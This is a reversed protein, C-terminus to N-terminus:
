QALNYERDNGDGIRVSKIKYNAYDLLVLDFTEVGVYGKLLQTTCFVPIGNISGTYDQHSHGCIIIHVKGEAGVFNYEKGNLIITTRSNFANCLKTVANAMPTIGSEFPSSNSVIHMAIANHNEPHNILLDAVWDIQKWRYATMSSDWDIGTDLVLFRTSSGKFAYYMKGYKRFWLNIMVQNSLVGEDGDSRSEGEIGGQYNNDHNGFMPYYNKFSSNMMGDIEGLYQLADSQKHNTLWDGGCLVFNSPINNYYQRLLNIANNRKEYSVNKYYLHTDTFFIFPEVDGEVNFLSTFRKANDKIIGNKLPEFSAYKKQLISVDDSLGGKKYVRITVDGSAIFASSTVYIILKKVDESPTFEVEKENTFNQIIINSTTNYYLPNSTTGINTIVGDAILRFVYAVGKKLSCPFDYTNSASEINAHLYVGEIAIKLDNLKKETNNNINIIDIRIEGASVFSSETVYLVFTTVDENPTFEVEKGNTFNQYILNSTSNYYLPCSVSASTIIGDAIMKLKYTEGKKLFCPLYYSKSATEIETTVTAGESKVQLDTLPMQLETIQKKFNYESNLLDTIDEINYWVKVGDIARGGIVIYDFQEPLTFTYEKKAVNSLLVSIINTHVDGLYYAVNFGLPSGSVSPKDWNTNKLTIKYTHGAILGDIKNSTYSEGIGKFYNKYTDKALETSDKAAVDISDIRDLLNDQFAFRIHAIGRSIFASETVWMILEAVDETPTFEIVKGDTFNQEILNNTSNWYLPSSVEGDTIVGNAKLTIKYTSGKKLYCPFSYAKGSSEIENTSVSVGVESGLEAIKDNQNQMLTDLPTAQDDIIAKTYTRPYENEGTKKNQLQVIKGM